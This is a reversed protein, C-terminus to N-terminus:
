TKNIGVYLNNNIKRYTYNKSEQIDKEQEVPYFTNVRQVARRGNDIHKRNFYIRYLKGFYKVFIDQPLSNGLVGAKEIPALIKEQLIIPLQEVPIEPTFYSKNDNFQKTLESYHRFLSHVLSYEDIHVETDGITLVLEKSGLNELIRNVKIYIFKSRLIIEKEKQAIDCPSLGKGDFAKRMGKITLRTEKRTELYIRDEVMQDNMITAKWNNVFDNLQTQEDPLINYDKILSEFYKLYLLNFRTDDCISYRTRDTPFMATCLIDAEKLSLNEGNLHRSMLDDLYEKWEEESSFSKTIYYNKRYINRQKQTERQRSKGAKLKSKDAIRRAKRSFSM